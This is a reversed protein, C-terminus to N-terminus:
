ITNARYERPYKPDRMGDARLTIVKMHKKIRLQM